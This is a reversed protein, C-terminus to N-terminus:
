TKRRTGSRVAGFAEAIMADKQRAINTPTASRGLDFIISPDTTPAPRGLDRTVLTRVYEALSIGLDHARQRAQRQTEPPLTIQIRATM